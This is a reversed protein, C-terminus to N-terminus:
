IVPWEDSREVLEVISDGSKVMGEALIKAYWGSRNVLARKFDEVFEEGVYPLAKLSGCPERPKSIQVVATGVSYKKGVVLEDYPIGKTTLNEGLHGPMVPWGDSNLQVIMELPMILIGNEPNRPKSIYRVQCDGEVGEFTIKAQEVERKQIGREVQVYPKVNIQYITGKM